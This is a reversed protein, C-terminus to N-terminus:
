SFTAGNTNLVTFRGGGGSGACVLTISANQSTTTLTTNLSNNYFILGGGTTYIFFSFGIGSIYYQDGLTPSSPLYYTGGTSFYGNFAVLNAGTSTQWTISPSSTSSITISGPGNTVNIGTGATLTNVVPPSTSKGILLQGNSVPTFLNSSNTITM